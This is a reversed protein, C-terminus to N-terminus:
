LNNHHSLLLFSITESHSPPLLLLSSSWRHCKYHRSFSCLNFTFLNLQWSVWLRYFLFHFFTMILFYLLQCLLSIILFLYSPLVKGPLASVCSTNVAEVIYVYDIRKKLWGVLSGRRMPEPILENIGGPGTFFVTPTPHSLSSLHPPLSCYQKGKLHQYLKTVLNIDNDLDLGADWCALETQISTKATYWWFRWSTRGVIRLLFGSRSPITLPLCARHLQLLCNESSKWRPDLLYQRLSTSVPLVVVEGFQSISQYKPVKFNTATFCRYVNERKIYEIHCCSTIHLGRRNARPKVLNQNLIKKSINQQM